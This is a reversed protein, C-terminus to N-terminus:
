KNWWLNYTVADTTGGTVAKVAAAWNIPNSAQENNPYYFRRPLNGNAGVPPNV